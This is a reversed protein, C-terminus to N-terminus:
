SIILKMLRLIHIENIQFLWIELQTVNLLGRNCWIGEQLSINLLMVQINSVNM